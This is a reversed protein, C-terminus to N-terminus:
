FNTSYVTVTGGRDFYKKIATKIKNFTKKLWGGGQIGELQEWNLEVIEVEQPVPAMSFDNITQNSHAMELIQSLVLYNHRSEKGHILWGILNYCNKFSGRRWWGPM